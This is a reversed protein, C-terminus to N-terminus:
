LSTENLSKGITFDNNHSNGCVLLTKFSMEVATENKQFSYESFNPFITKIEYIQL